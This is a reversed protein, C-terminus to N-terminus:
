KLVGIEEPREKMFMLFKIFGQMEEEQIAPFMGIQKAKEVPRPPIVVRLTDKGRLTSVPIHYESNFRVEIMSIDKWGIVWKASPLNTKGLGIVQIDKKLQSYGIIYNWIEQDLFGFRSNHAYVIRYLGADSYVNDFLRRMYRKAKLADLALEDDCQERKKIKMTHM